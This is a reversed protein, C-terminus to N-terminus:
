GESLLKRLAERDRRLREELPLNLIGIPRGPSSLIKEQIDMQEEQRITTRSKQGLVDKLLMLYSLLIVVLSFVPFMLNWELGEFFELQNM